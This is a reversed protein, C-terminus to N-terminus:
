FNRRKFVSRQFCIYPCLKIIIHLKTKSCIGLSNIKDFFLNHFWDFCGSFQEFLDALLCRDIYVFHKFNNRICSNNRWVKAERNENFSLGVVKETQLSVNINVTSSWWNSELNCLFSSEGVTSINSSNWREGILQKNSTDILVTSDVNRHLGNNLNCRFSVAQLNHHFLNILDGRAHSGYIHSVISQLRECGLLWTDELIKGGNNKM